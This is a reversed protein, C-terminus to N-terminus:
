IYQKCIQPVDIIIPLVIFICKSHSYISPSFSAIDIHRINHLVFLKDRINMKKRFKNMIIQMVPDVLPVLWM